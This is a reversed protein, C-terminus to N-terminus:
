AGISSSIMGGDTRHWLCDWGRDKLEKRVKSVTATSVGCECAIECGVKGSLLMGEITNRLAETMIKKM